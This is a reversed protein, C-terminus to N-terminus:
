FPEHLPNALQWKAVRLMRSEIEKRKFIDSPQAYAFSAFMVCGFIAAILVRRVKKGHTETHETCDTTGAKKVVSYVSDVSRGRFSLSSFKKMNNFQSRLQSVVLSRVLM